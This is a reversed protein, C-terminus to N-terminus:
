QKEITRAIHKDKQRKRETQKEEKREKDGIFRELVCM